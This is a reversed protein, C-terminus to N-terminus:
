LAIPYRLRYTEGYIYLFIIAPTFLVCLVALVTSGWGWHMTQYLSRGVLPLLTGGVSRIVANAAIASAAYITYADVLYGTVAAFFLINGMGILSSGIIPIIWHLHIEASWGYWLLGTALLPGSFIVPILRDEPRLKGEAVRKRIYRDSTMSFATLAIVNGVGIGLFSLGITQASFGYEVQFVLPFTTLLLFLLGNIFASVLSLMINIPSLISIKAPRVIARVFIQTNSLGPDLKSRLGMKGAHDRLSRCKQELITVAYTERMFLVQILTM